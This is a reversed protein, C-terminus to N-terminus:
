HCDGYHSIANVADKNSVNRISVYKIIIFTSKSNKNLNKLKKLLNKNM